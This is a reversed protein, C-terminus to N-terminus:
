NIPWKVTSCHVLSAPVTQVFKQVGTCLSVPPAQGLLGTGFVVPVTPLRHTGGRPVVKTPHEELGVIVVPVHPVTSLWVSVDTFHFLHTTLACCATNVSVVTFSFILYTTIYMCLYKGTQAEPPPNYWAKGTYRHFSFPPHTHVPSTYKYMYIRGQHTRKCTHEERLSSYWATGICRYGRHFNM